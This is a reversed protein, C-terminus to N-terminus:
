EQRQISATTINFILPVTCYDYISGYGEQGTVGKDYDAM